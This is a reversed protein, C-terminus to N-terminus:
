EAVKVLISGRKRGTDVHAHAAPMEHWAYSHDIHARFHGAGALRALEAVDERRESAPGAIMRTNRPGPRLSGFMEALAGSIALYRGHPKLLHQATTFNMAGVTDAIIDYRGDVPMTKYDIVRSAGHDAVLGSNHTSTTATVEAGQHRALQIIALGVAGSGGLVLLSNGPRLRAARLFHLATTGGFSLAAASAFDLGQPIHEVPGDESMVVYQAHSGMKMGSFAFVADGSRFRKVGAGVAEVVGALETGLVPQRPGGWGLALRGITRMGSPFNCARVRADGSNVTTTHVRILLQGEGPTPIALEELHLVEVGGYQRAFWAQM